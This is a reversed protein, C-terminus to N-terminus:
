FQCLYSWKFNTQLPNSEAPCAPSGTPGCIENDRFHNHYTGTKLGMIGLLIALLCRTHPFTGLSEVELSVLFFDSLFWVKVTQTSRGRLRRGGHAQALYQEWLLGLRLWFQGWKESCVHLVAGLALLAGCCPCTASGSNDTDQLTFTWSECCVVNLIKPIWHTGALM